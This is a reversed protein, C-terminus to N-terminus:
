SPVIVSSRLLKASCFELLKSANVDTNTAIIQVSIDLAPTSWRTAIGKSRETSARLWGPRRLVLHEFGLPFSALEYERSIWPLCLSPKPMLSAAPSRITDDNFSTSKPM